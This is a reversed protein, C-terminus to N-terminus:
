RRARRPAPVTATDRVRYQAATSQHDVDRANIDAGHELLLDIIATTSAFHLPRQGDGGPAHVLSPDAALM